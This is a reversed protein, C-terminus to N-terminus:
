IDSSKRVFRREHDARREFLAPLQITGGSRCIGPEGSSQTRRARLPRASALTGRRLAREILIEAEMGLLSRFLRDLRDIACVLVLESVCVIERFEQITKPRRTNLDGLLNLVRDLQRAKGPFRTIGSRCFGGAFLFVPARNGHGLTDHVPGLCVHFPFRLSWCLSTRGRAWYAGPPSQM